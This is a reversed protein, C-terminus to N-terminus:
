VIIVSEKILKIGRPRKQKWNNCIIFLIIGVVALKQAWEKIGCDPSFLGAKSKIRKDREQHNFPTPSFVFLATNKITM